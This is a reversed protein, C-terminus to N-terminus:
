EHRLAAFWIGDRRCKGLNSSLNRLAALAGVVVVQAQAQLPGGQEGDLAVHRALIAVMVNSCELAHLEATAADVGPLCGGGGGFSFNM